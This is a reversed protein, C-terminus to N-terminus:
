RTLLVFKGDKVVKMILPKGLVDGNEDFSFEGTLGQFSSITHLAKAIDGPVTNGAKRIGEAIIMMAEYGQTAAIDPEKAYTKRFKELFNRMSPYDFDPHFVSGAYVNEAADGAIKLLMPHDLADGGIIPVKVGMKRAEVIFEAAKPMVGALFIADFRYNEKWFQIEDRFNRATSLDDYSSRDLVTLGNSLANIEFANSLGRGYDDNIQYILINKFGMQNCFEALKVGFIRDSPINRFINPYGQTTLKYGTSLPSVMVIGYYQYMISVPISVYSSSHGLVAVIDENDAFSQAVMQGTTLDSNDDGKVIRIDRGNLLGGGQNIEEVAMSIGEWLLNRKESWPSAAGILIDGTSKLATKARNEAPNDSGSCASIMATMAVILCIKGYSHKIKLEHGGAARGPALSKFLKVFMNQLICFRGKTFLLDIWKDLNKFDPGGSPGSSAFWLAYGRIKNIM